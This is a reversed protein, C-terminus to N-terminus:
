RARVRAVEIWYLQQCGTGKRNMEFKHKKCPIEPNMLTVLCDMVPGFGSVKLATWVVSRTPETSEQKPPAPNSRRDDCLNKKTKRLGGPM